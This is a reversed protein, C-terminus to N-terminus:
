VNDEDDWVDGDDELELRISRVANWAKETM